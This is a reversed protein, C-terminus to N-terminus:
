LRERRQAGSMGGSTLTASVLALSPRKKKHGTNACLNGNQTVTLWFASHWLSGDVESTIVFFFFIGPFRPMWLEHYWMQLTMSLFQENEKLESSDALLSPLWQIKLHLFLWKLWLFTIRAIVTERPNSQMFIVPAWPQCLCKYLHQAVYTDSCQMVLDIQDLISKFVPHPWCLWRAICYLENTNLLSSSFGPIWSRKCSLWWSFSQVSFSKGLAEYVTGNRRLPASLGAWM